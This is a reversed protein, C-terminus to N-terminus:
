RDLRVRVGFHVASQPQAPSWSRRPQPSARDHHQRHRASPLRITDLPLQPLMQLASAGLIRTEAMIFSIHHENRPLRLTNRRALMKAEDAVGLFRWNCTSKRRAPTAIRRHLDASSTTEQPMRFLTVLDVVETFLRFQRKYVDSAASSPKPTSRPPRRIM